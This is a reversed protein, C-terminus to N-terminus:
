CCGLRDVGVLFMIEYTEWTMGVADWAILEVAGTVDCSMNMGGTDSGCHGM